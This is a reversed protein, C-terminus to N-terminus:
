VGEMEWGRKRRPTGKGLCAAGGWCYLVQESRGFGGYLERPVERETAM